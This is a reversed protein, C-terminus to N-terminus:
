VRKKFEKKEETEVYDSFVTKKPKLPDNDVYKNPLIYDGHEEVVSCMLNAM